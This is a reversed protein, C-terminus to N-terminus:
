ATLRGVEPIGIQTWGHSFFSSPVPIPSEHQIVGPPKRLAHFLMRWVTTSRTFKLLVNSPFFARMVRCFLLFLMLTPPSFVATPILDRVSSKEPLLFVAM